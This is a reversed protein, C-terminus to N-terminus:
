TTTTASLDWDADDGEGPTTATEFRSSEPDNPDLSVSESGARARVITFVAPIVLLTSLTALGLGGMVARGLPATQEGGEGFALAMPAMGALMACSTMLIPRLRGSGGAAAAEGSSRCDLRAREAFVVLLISNALAVGIAMITGMFSQLNLTTGTVLLALVAGAVAAPVAAMVVLALPPSQFYASLLLFVVVVTLGLGVALGQFMEQMPISQGYFSVTVGRPAAGAAKSAAAVREAVRGLDQGHIDARLSVLRRMNYRDYEGPMTGEKITAVDRLSLQGNATARLPIVEIEKPSSMRVTPVEVQVQYGIGSNPDRWFNPVVYRSSSTAAVLSRSVDRVTMGSLGAKERDIEVQLVPYDLSQVVQLDRLSDIKAMERRIKGAHERSAALSPGAVSVEIPTPSGFSMVESVIDGAEFSLKVDKLAPSGQRQTQPIKARLREKLEEVRIGCGHKLSVRLLAEQPGATWMYIFNIPYNNSATGVLGITIAVNGPGAERDIIALVDRTLAEMNGLSTGEPARLRLQFQGADVSPFIERGLHSGGLVIVLGALALYGITVVWRFRLVGRLVAAYGAAFAAFSFRGHRPNEHQSQRRLLWISLVPVFTSSLVYSAFMAFGVALSLPIFLGRVAGQMFFSPIFVALICLMALLCPVATELTGRWVAQAVSPTLEMQAHINEVVVTAEDVLIGVALALGGLTMINISQGALWLMVLAALIALPINVVVVLVSRWDRLFLLVMLGTLVAGLLGEKTVDSMARTVYPSQDFEFRVEVDESLVAQMRPLNAKVQEVVNLTSADPRKTIPLFVSRRGNVLAYGSQVDTSDHVTGVDRLYLRGAEGLRLPIKELDQIDTVVSNIPVMYTKGGATINGSPSVQNGSILAAIIEDPSLRYARLRDPDLRVLITRAEGGFSPPASVGRLSSLLPRVRFTAQDQVEGVTKTKSSFVLYGVPVSGADYRVVIPPVTGTPQWARARNVYNVTEGLAQDMSTGPHFTLKSLAIGQINRSEVHHIGTILLFLFETYNTLYGEMQAPDMGGYPQVVYIV